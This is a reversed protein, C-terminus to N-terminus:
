RLARKIRAVAEVVDERNGFATFRVYGEGEPGFGVGPTSVVQCEFLLREFMRWSDVGRPARMWIYPADVGGFAELGISELGERILRANEMYYAINSRIQEQGTSSYVAEAARQVIYATGNFKCSQRRAWLKNLSVPLGEADYGMVEHPVVTYGCRLGTFGATKSFSRFEIACQRAGKIEYITHPVDPRSIFAEYAADFLILVKNELAYDVWVKLQQKTLTTGTPNNPYCLYIIDPREAPLAPVFGNDASCPIYIIDSWQGNAGLEGARDAIVNDDIYAPYVPDTIAVRNDRAFLDCINGLDSKAGDSVFVESPALQVGRSEYDHRIIKEILFSYGQEPGYGRFTERRAMEDTAKHLAEVVAPVLPLTVDGIGLSIVRAEPHITKYASVRRAVESFLYNNSLRTISDNILAM